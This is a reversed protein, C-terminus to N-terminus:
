YSPVSSGVCGYRGKISANYYSGFSSAGRFGSWVGSPLDCYHYYTGNLGIVTYGTAPDYWAGTVLSSGVTSLHEFAPHAVDVPDSRYRVFVYQAQHARTTTVAVTSSSASTTPARSAGEATSTTPSSGTPPAISTSLEAAGDSCSGVALAVVAVLIGRRHRLGM